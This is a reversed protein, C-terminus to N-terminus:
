KNSKMRSSGKGARSSVPLGQGGHDAPRGVRIPVQSMQRVPSTACSTKFWNRQARRRELSVLTVIGDRWADSGQFCIEPTAASALDM